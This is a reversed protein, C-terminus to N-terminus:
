CKLLSPDIRPEGGSVALRAILKSSLQPLSSSSSPLLARPPRSHSRLPPIESPLMRRRCQGNSVQLATSLWSCTAGQAAHGPPWGDGGPTTGKDGRRGVM